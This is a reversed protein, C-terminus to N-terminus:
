KFWVQSINANRSDPAPNPFEFKILSSLKFASGYGYGYGPPLTQLRKVSEETMYPIMQEVYNLDTPHIIRMTVFNGCQSITTESLESPRQTILGLILGYKRGEKTIRNFINYGLIEEDKDNQVYRHAEEIILHIPMSAKPTINTAIDFFLKSFIKVIIKAYRDDLQNINFNVISAKQGNKNFINSIYAQLSTHNPYDFYTSFTSNIIANLRISLVSLDDYRKESNYLGESILAFDLAVKLDHLDYSFTGDPLSLETNNDILSHVFETLTELATIKGDKDIILCQKLSRTWGPVKIQTDLNFTTTNFSSLVGIIQDRIKAAGKGSNIIDAITKAIISNKQNIITAEDKAFVNVLKLTKEIINLENPKEVRLLLAIDDIGLLWLPIKLIEIENQNINTTIRKFIAGKEELNVFANEYEGYADFIVINPKSSNLGTKFVNQFIRAVACSKGSGTNGLIAFHSSFFDDMNIGYSLNNFNPLHGIEFQHNSKTAAMITNIEEDNIQRVNKNLTPKSISGMIFNNQSINGIIICTLLSNKFSIPEGIILVNDNEVVVHRNMFNLTNPTKIYVEFTKEFVGTIIGLM